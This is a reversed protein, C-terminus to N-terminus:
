HQMMGTLFYVIIIFIVLAQYHCFSSFEGVSISSVLNRTRALWFFVCQVMDETYSYSSFILLVRSNRQNKHMSLMGSFHVGSILCKQGLM